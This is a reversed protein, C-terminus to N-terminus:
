ELLKKWFEQAVEANGPKRYWHNRGSPHPIVAINASHIREWKQFELGELDFARAVNRGVLIATRYKLLPRIAQAAIRAERRPWKDDRKWRGPFEHLLNTRDFLKLYASPHIGMLEVLRGGTSSKPIPFLPAEPNTNPGPAQGILIVKM